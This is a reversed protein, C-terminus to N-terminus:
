LILNASSYGINLPLRKKRLECRNDSLLKKSRWSRRSSLRRTTYFHLFPVKPELITRFLRRITEFGHRAGTAELAGCADGGPAWAGEFTTGRNGVSSTVPTDRQRRARDQRHGLLVPALQLRRNQALDSELKAGRFSRRGAATPVDRRRRCEREGTSKAPAKRAGLRWSRSTRSRSVGTKQSMM